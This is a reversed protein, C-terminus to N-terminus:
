RVLCSTTVEESADSVLNAPSGDLFSTINIATTELIRHLAEASYLAIHPTM